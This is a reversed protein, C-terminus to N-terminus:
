GYIRNWFYKYEKKVIEYAKPQNDPVCIGHMFFWLEYFIIAEAMEIPWEPPALRGDAGYCPCYMGWYGDEEKFLEVNYEALYTQRLRHNKFDSLELSNLVSPKPKTFM